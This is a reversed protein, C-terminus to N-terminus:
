AHCNTVIEKTIMSITPDVKMKLMRKHAAGRRLERLTKTLVGCPQLYGDMMKLIFTNVDVAWNEDTM